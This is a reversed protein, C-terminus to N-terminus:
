TVSNAFFVSIPDKINLKKIMIDIEDSDFVKKKMKTYFTKPTMGLNKAMEAQSFGNQALLGRLVATDVM